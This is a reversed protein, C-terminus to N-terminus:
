GLFLSEQLLQKVAAARMLKAGAEKAKNLDEASIIGARDANVEAHYRILPSDQPVCSVYMGKLSSDEAVTHENECRFHKLTEKKDGSAIAQAFQEKTLAAIFCKGIIRVPHTQYGYRENQTERDTFLRNIVEPDRSDSYWGLLDKEAEDLDGLPRIIQKRFQDSYTLAEIYGEPQPNGCKNIWHAILIYQGLKNSVNRYNLLEHGRGMEIIKEATAETIASLWIKQTFSTRGGSRSNRTPTTSASRPTVSRLEAPSPSHLNESLGLDEQTIPCFGYPTARGATPTVSSREEPAFLVGFSLFLTLYLSKM